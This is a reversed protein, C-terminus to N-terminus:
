GAINAVGLNTRDILSICYMLGTLPVLRRDIKWLIKRQEKPTFETHFFDVGNHSPDPSERTKERYLEDYQVGSKEVDAM